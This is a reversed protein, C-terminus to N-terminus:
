DHLFFSLLHNSTDNTKEEVRWNILRIFSDHCKKVSKQWWATKMANSLEAADDLPSLYGHAALHRAVGAKMVERQGMDVDLRRILDATSQHIVLPGLWQDEVLEWSYAETTILLLIGALLYHFIFRRKEHRNYNWSM